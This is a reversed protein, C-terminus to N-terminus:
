LDSRTAFCGLEKSTLKKETDLPLRTLSFGCSCRAIIRDKSQDGFCWLFNPSLSGSCKPCKEEPDYIKM